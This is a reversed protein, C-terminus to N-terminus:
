AMALCNEVFDRLCFKKGPATVDIIPNLEITVHDDGFDLPNTRPVFCLCIFPIIYALENNGIFWQKLETCM